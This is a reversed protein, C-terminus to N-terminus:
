SKELLKLAASKKARLNKVTMGAVIARVDRLIEEPAQRAPKIAGADGTVDALLNVANFAALESTHTYHRTMAPNSHGVISEM